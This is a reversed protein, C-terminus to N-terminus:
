DMSRQLFTKVSLGTEIKQGWIIKKIKFNMGRKKWILKETLLKSMKSMLFAFLNDLRMSQKYEHGSTLQATKLAKLIM